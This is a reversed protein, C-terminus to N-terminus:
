TGAGIPGAHALVHCGRKVADADPEVRSGLEEKGQTVDIVALQDALGHVCLVEIPSELAM